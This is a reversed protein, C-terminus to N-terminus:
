ALPPFNVDEYVFLDWVQGWELYHARTRENAALDDQPQGCDPSKMAQRGTIVSAPPVWLRVESPAIVRNQLLLEIAGKEATAIPLMADAAEKSPFEEISACMAIAIAEDKGARIGDRYDPRNFWMTGYRQTLQHYVEAIRPLHDADQCLGARAAHSKGSGSPAVLFRCPELIPAIM